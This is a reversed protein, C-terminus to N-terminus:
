DQTEWKGNSGNFPDPRDKQRNVKWRPYCDPAQSQLNVNELTHLALSPSRATISPHCLM